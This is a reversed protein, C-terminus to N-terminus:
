KNKKIHKQTRMQQERQTIITIQDRRWTHCRSLPANLFACWRCCLRTDAISPLRRRRCVAVWDISSASVSTPFSFLLPPWRYCRVPLSIHLLTLLFRSFLPEIVCFGLPFTSVKSCAVELTSGSQIEAVSESKWDRTKKEGKNQSKSTQVAAVCVCSPKHKPRHINTSYKGIQVNKLTDIDYMENFVVYVNLNKSM